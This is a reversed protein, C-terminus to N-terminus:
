DFISQELDSSNDSSNDLCNDNLYKVFDEIDEDSSDVNLEAIKFSSLLPIETLINRKKNINNKWIHPKKQVSYPTLGRKTLHVSMCNERNCNGFILDDHCIRYIQNIAGNKCNYGGPCIKKLCSICVKTLSLMTNFLKNDNVLNLTSLDTSSKLMMYVTHRTSDIQQESLSHAFMCKNGHRCIKGQIINYCLIKKHKRDPKEM